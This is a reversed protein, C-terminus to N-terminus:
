IHCIQKKWRWDEEHTVDEGCDEAENIDKMRWCAVKMIQKVGEGDEVDESEGFRRRQWKKKIKVNMIRKMKQMMINLYLKNGHKQKTAIKPWQAVTEVLIQELCSNEWFLSRRWNLVM